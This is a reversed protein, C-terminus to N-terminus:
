YIEENYGINVNRFSSDCQVMKPIDEVICIHNPQVSAILKLKRYEEFKDSKSTVGKLKEFVVQRKTSDPMDFIFPRIFLQGTKGRPVDCSFSGTYSATKGVSIGFSVTTAVLPFAGLLGTLTHTISTSISYDRLISGGSGLTIDMCPTVPIMNKLPRISISDNPDDPKFECWSEDEEDYYVSAKTNTFYLINKKYKMLDGNDSDLLENANNFIYINSKSKKDQSEVLINSLSLLNDRSSAFGVNGLVYGLNQEKHYTIVPNRMDIIMGTVNRVDWDSVIGLVITALFYHVFAKFM